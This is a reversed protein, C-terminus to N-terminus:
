FRWRNGCNVCSVFTTLPEDASRTQMQYYTCKREKCKNCKFMDTSAAPKNFPMADKIMKEKVKETKKRLDDNALEESSMEILEDPSIERKLVAGRLKSNKPDKFNFSLSRYKQKYALGGGEIKDFMVQEIANAVILADDRSELIKEETKFLSDCLLNRIKDRMKDGTPHPVDYLHSTDSPEPSPPAVQEVDNELDDKIAKKSPTDTRNKKEITKSASLKKQLLDTM